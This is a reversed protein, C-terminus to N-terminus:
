FAGIDDDVRCSESAGTVLYPIDLGFGPRQFVADIYNGDVPGAHIVVGYEQAAMGADYRRVSINEAFGAPIFVGDEYRFDVDIFAGLCPAGNRVQAVQVFRQYFGLPFLDSVDM